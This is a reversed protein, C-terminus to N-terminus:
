PSKPRSRRSTVAELGTITVVLWVLGASYGGLIDSLYNRGLYLRSFGTLLVILVALTVAIVRTGWRASYRMALYGLAGYLAVAAMAPGSPFDAAIGPGASLGVGPRVRTLLARLLLDLLATGGIAIAVLLGRSWQRRWGLYGALALSLGLIVPLSGTFSVGRMIATFPPETRAALFQEVALDVQVLPDGHLVDEAIGLFLWTGAVIVVVGISFHLGLYERPSLRRQLFAVPAALRRRLAAVVPRALFGHWRTRLAAEHRVAWRGILLAAALVLLIGLLLLGARGAWRELRPWQSGFAAGLWGLSVAWLIGGAANYLLFRRYPMRHVGALFASFVRLVAIFRGFFVVKDGYRAFFEEARALHHEKIRLRRGYRNLLARGGRKGITYGLSDGVIAGAAAALIVGWVSLHGAGAYAAALLLMTEGPLPLGMSEAM